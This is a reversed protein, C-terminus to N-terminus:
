LIMTNTWSMTITWGNEGDNWKGNVNYSSKERNKNTNLYYHFAWQSNSDWTLEDFSESRNDWFNKELNKEEKYFDKELDNFMDEMYRERHKFDAMSDFFM